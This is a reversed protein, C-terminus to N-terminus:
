RTLRGKSPAAPANTLAFPISKPSEIGGTGGATATLEVNVTGLSNLASVSQAPVKASCSATVDPSVPTGCTHALPLASAAPISGNVSVYLKYILGNATAVDAANAPGDWAITSNTSIPIPNQAAAVGTLAFLLALALIIRHM